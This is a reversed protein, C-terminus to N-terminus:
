MRGSRFGSLDIFKELLHCSDLLLERCREEDQENWAEILQDYISTLTNTKEKNIRTM